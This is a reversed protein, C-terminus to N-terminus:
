PSSRRSAVRRSGHAAWGELRASRARRLILAPMTKWIAVAVILTAARPRSVAGPVTVGAEALLAVLVTGGTMFAANLVNVAAVNRARYDASSWAQVAAFAPVIFLGGGIALGAFDIAPASVLTSTFVVGPGHPTASGAGLTAAGIDLAFCV